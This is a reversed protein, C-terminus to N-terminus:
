LFGFVPCDNQNVASGALRFGHHGAESKEDTATMEPPRLTQRMWYGVPTDAYKTETPTRYM